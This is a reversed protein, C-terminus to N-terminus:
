KIKTKEETIVIDKKLVKGQHYYKDCRELGLKKAIELSSTGVIYCDELENEVNVELNEIKGLTHIKYLEEIQKKDVNKSYVGSNYEDIFSSDIKTKDETIILTNGDLDSNIEYEINNYICYYGNRIMLRNNELRKIVKHLESGKVPTVRNNLIWQQRQKLNLIDM